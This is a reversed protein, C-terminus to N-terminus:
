AGIRGLVFDLFGGIESKLLERDQATARGDYSRRAAEILREWQPFAECAWRATAYKSVVVDRTEFSYMLRCLNLACYAPYDKLHDEVYRLEGRLAAELEPWTPAPFIEKPDPGTLVFCRGALIHERHLAWSNDRIEPRLQHAPPTKKHADELLIFYGDLEAGFPPFDQALTAYLDNVKEIEERSLKERLIVHFDIDGTSAAEPFAVAGYVYIGHLREGLTAKLGQVLARCLGEIQKPPEM